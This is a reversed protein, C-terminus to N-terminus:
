STRWSSGCLFALRNERGGWVGKWHEFNALRQLFSWRNQLYAGVMADESALVAATVANWSLPGLVGDQQAPLLGASRQLLKAAQPAGANFAADFHCIALASSARAVLDGACAVWFGDYIATQEAPTMLQVSQSPLGHGARWHDYAAQTVGNETPNPDTPGGPWWGREEHATFVEGTVRPNPFRSTM